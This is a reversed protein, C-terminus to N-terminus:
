SRVVQERLFYKYSILNIAARQHKILKYPKGRECETEPAVFYIINSMRRTTQM